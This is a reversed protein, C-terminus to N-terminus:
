GAKIAKMQEALHWLAKNIKTDEAVSGVGRTTLRRGTTARGRVGGRILNEQVRNMTTFLDSGNDEHRRAALLAEPKVPISEEDWRLRAASEAFITQEAASLQVERMGDVSAALKPIEKVIEFSADVVERAANKSHRIAISAFTADAVILGNGCVFRFLGAHLKYASSGDHSNLMVLEPVVDGADIQADGHRFRIVHRMQEAADAGSRRAKGQGAYVPLWGAGRLEDLVDLTRILGYRNSLKAAPSTGFVAPALQAIRENTLVSNGSKNLNLM